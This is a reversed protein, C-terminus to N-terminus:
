DEMQKIMAFVAAVARWTEEPICDGIEQLSLINETLQDEVVPIDNEKAIEIMREALFGKAKAQIVPAEKEPPYKLAVASFNNNKM